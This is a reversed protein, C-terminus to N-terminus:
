AIRQSLRDSGVGGRSVGKRPDTEGRTSASTPERGWTEPGREWGGAQGVSSWGGMEERARPALCGGGESQRSPSALNEDLRLNSKQWPAWLLHWM